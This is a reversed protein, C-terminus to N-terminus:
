LNKSAGFPPGHTFLTENTTALRIQYVNVKDTTVWRRVSLADVTRRDVVLIAPTPHIIEGEKNIYPCQSNVCSLSRDRGDIFGGLGHTKGGPNTTYIRSEVEVLEPQGQLDPDYLNSEYSYASFYVALAVGVLIGPLVADKPDKFNPPFLPEM